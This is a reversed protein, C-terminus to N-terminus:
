WAPRTLKEGLVVLELLCLRFMLVMEFRRSGITLPIASDGPLTTVKLKDKREQEMEPIPLFDQVKFIEGQLVWNKEGQVATFDHVNYWLNNYPSLEAAHLQGSLGTYNYQFCAFRCAIQEPKSSCTHISM